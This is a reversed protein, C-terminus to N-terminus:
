QRSKQLKAWIETSEFQYDVEKQQKNKKCFQKIYNLLAIADHRKQSFQNAELWQLLLSKKAQDFNANEIIAKYKRDPYFMQKSVQLLKEMEVESIIGSKCANNLTPRIDVMATSLPANNLEDPGHIVAVEDDDILVSNKYDEFVKGIGVMGYSHLEAARLAGMSSAGFVHIGEAMAWLIEKHWVSPVSDFCGDIIGIAFPHNLAQNFLDGQEVPPLYIADLISTAIEKNLSPGLFIVVKKDMPWPKREKELPIFDINM